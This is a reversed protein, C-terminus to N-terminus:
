TDKKLTRIDAILQMISSKNLGNYIGRIHRNQDILVFNETHLFDDDEKQLGLDEEVFYAKRGLDYIEKQDGTLLHWKSSIIGKKEAYTKLVAVSDKNPTVSHSLLLVEDDDAFEEQLLSMNNTMKPCIGPCSTFFFDAVYIKGEVTKETITQGEQDTLAFAPIQHLSDAIQTENIWQPQFTAESFYPLREIRSEKEETQESCAALVLCLFFLKHTQITKSLKM